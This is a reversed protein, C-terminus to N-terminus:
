ITYHEIIDEPVKASRGTQMDIMVYDFWGDCCVKNTAKNTIAFKVRCGKDDISEIGTKVIFYDGMTLARKYEVFATRVVWGFGREMFKDMPM